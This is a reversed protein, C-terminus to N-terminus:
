ARGVEYSEGAATDFCVVNGDEVTAKVAKGDAGTVKADGAFPNAIRCRKGAESVISVPGVRGAKQAASVLFGGEARFTRFACDVKKPWAPFVRIAGDWSQLMMEILPMIMGTGEVYLGCYGMDDTGMGRCTGNDQLERRITERIGNIAKDPNILGERICATWPRPTGGTGGAWNGSLEGTAMLKLTHQSLGQGDPRCFEPFNMDQRAREGESFSSLDVGAPPALNQLIDAWQTRLGEDVSLIRAAKTAYRLCYAAHRIVQPQDLYTEIKGTFHSEGQPSPFAHYLGDDWKQLTDTYFLAADRIVPYAEDRLWHLDQTYLYRWWWYSAVWGTMYMMRCIGGTGYPDELYPFPYGLLHIFTGRANWYKRAFLRGAEVLHKMGVFFADAMEVHNTALNGWFPQQYNYNTHYDGHWLSYDQVTSPFALGPAVADPRYACRRAHLIGYWMRELVPDDIEVASRAWFDAADAHTEDRWQMLMGPLDDALMGTIRNLEAKLGGDDSSAPVAVTLWGTPVDDKSRIHIVGDGKSFPQQPAIELGTVYPVLAYSYGNPFEIDPYFLQEIALRGEIKRVAPPPLPTVKPSQIAGEWMWYGAKIEYECAFEEVDPDAWRRLVFRVPPQSRSRTEETLNEVQWHVVLANTHPPIFCTFRYTLGSEWTLTIEAEGKEILVKQTIKEDLQDIPLRAMLEGVPKPCPYPRNAYSPAGRVLEHMRKEDAPPGKTARGRAREDATYRESVWGEDRIGRILEAIHAPEADDSTDLRRDWVDGKGFRWVITNAKQYISVSLDGNGLLLGQEPELVLHDIEITHM